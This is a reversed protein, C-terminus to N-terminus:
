VRATFIVECPKPILMIADDNHNNLDMWNDCGPAPRIDFKNVIEATWLFLRTMALVEGLCVRPGAGFPLLHKRNGHDPPLLEGNDGLFREPRFICPDGWLAEDHHLAWSNIMFLTGKPITGYGTLEVTEAAEHVIGGMPTISFYRLTEFIVARVYPMQPRHKLSLRNCNTSSLANKTEASMKEQIDRRFSLTNLLLHLTLSTTITGAIIIVLSSLGAEIESISTKAKDKKTGLGSGRDSVTDLLVRPLTDHEALSLNMKINNWCETQVKLLDKMGKSGPLPLHILWPFMDLMPYSWHGLGFCSTFDNEYQMLLKRLPDEKPIARGLLLVTMTNLAGSKLVGMTSFPVNLKSEFESIMQSLVDKLVPELKSMGDGFQKLYRHSQKRLVRWSVDNNKFSMINRNIIYKMRFTEPRNSFAAGKKLLIEHILDYKSVIVTEGALMTRIRFAGGYRRAWEHFTFRPKAPNIQLLHGLVPFGPPSPIAALPDPKVYGWVVHIIWLLTAYLAISLILDM